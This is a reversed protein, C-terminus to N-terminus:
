PAPANVIQATAQLGEVLKKMSEQLKEQTLHEYLRESAEMYPVARGESREDVKIIHFGFETEVIDSIEGPQLAFAAEEFAPVMQGRGFFGLDGGRPGSPGESYEIAIAEFDAGDMLEKQIGAIKDEAARKAAEDDGAPKVLIHRAHIEEPIKMQEANADYFARIEEDSVDISPLIGQTVLQQVSLQQRIDERYSSETFGSAQIRSLFAQESDSESKARQLQEDVAVDSAIFDRRQAEQWLLEQVVLQEVVQRRMQQYVEPQIADSPDGGRSSILYDIQATVKASTIQVGNVVVSPDPAQAVLPSCALLLLVSCLKRITM